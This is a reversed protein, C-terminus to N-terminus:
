AQAKFYCHAHERFEWRTRDGRTPDIRHKRREAARLGPHPRRVARTLQV